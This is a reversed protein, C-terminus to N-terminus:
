CTCSKEIKSAEECVELFLKNYCAGLTGRRCVHVVNQPNLSSYLVMVHPCGALVGTGPFVSLFPGEGATM